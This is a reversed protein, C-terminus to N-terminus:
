DISKLRKLRAEADARGTFPLGSSLARALQRRASQRSGFEELAVGLHYHLEPVGEQRALAERLRALGSELDGLQVQIWGLTDLVAANDPALAYARQAASLAQESDRKLAAVALNNLATVDSPNLEIVRNYLDIARDREGLAAYHDALVRMVKGNDPHAQHWSALSQLAAQGDGAERQANYIRIALAPTDDLKASQRYLTIADRIQGRQLRIDGLLSLADANSPHRTLLQSVTDDAHILRQQAVHIRALILAPGAADPYENLARQMGQAADDYAGAKVQLEAIAVRQAIHGGALRAADVLVARASDADSRALHLEALRRKVPVSEPLESDLTGILAMAQDFEGLVEFVRSLLMADSVSRPKIALIQQLFEAAAQYDRQAIRLEAYTRLAVENGPEASLLEQLTREARAYRAQVIDLKILNIRAPDFGPDRQLVGHFLKRGTAYRREAVAVVAQLNIALLNDPVRAAIDEAVQRASAFDGIHLYLIGLFISAGASRGPALDVLRRMTDIALDSRGQGYQALGLRGILKLDPMTLDIANRYHQEALHYERVDAYVDGLMVQTQADGPRDLAISRLERIADLPQGMISLLKASQKRAQVDGPKSVLYRRLFLASQDLQNTDYLVLSSILLLRPNDALDDPGVRSVMYAARVLAKEAADPRGAAALAQSLLYAAELSWPQQALIEEFWRVAEVPKNRNLVVTARAIQAKIHGPDLTLAKIFHSEASALQSRAELLIGMLFWAEANDPAVELARRCQTKAEEHDGDELNVAVLGLLGSVKSPEIELVKDFAIRADVREGLALQARGLEAWLDAAVDDPIGNSQISEVNLRYKGLHNRARALPVAVQSPAAGLRRAEELAEEAAKPHALQLRIRGLLVKAPLYGPDRKLSEHVQALAGQYDRSDFRQLANEFVRLARTDASANGSWATSGILLILLLSLPKVKIMRM